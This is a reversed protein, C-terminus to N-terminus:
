SGIKEKLLKKKKLEKGLVKLQISKIKCPLTVYFYMKFFYTAMVIIAVVQM